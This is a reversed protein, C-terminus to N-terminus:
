KKIFKHLGVDNIKKHQLYGYSSGIFISTLYIKIMNIGYIKNVNINRYYNIFSYMAVPIIVYGGCLKNTKENHQLVRILPLQHGLLDLLVCFCYPIKYRNIVM